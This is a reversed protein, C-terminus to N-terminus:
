RFDITFAEWPGVGQGKCNLKSGGGDEATWYRGGQSRFAVKDGARIVPGSSPDIKVIAFTEFSGVQSGTAVLFKGGGDEATLWRQGSTRLAVADGNQLGFGNADVLTFLEQEGAQNSKCIVKGGGGKDAFVYQGNPGRLTVRYSQPRRMAALIENWKAVVQLTTPEVGLKDAQNIRLVFGTPRGTNDVGALAVLPLDADSIQLRSAFDQVEPLTFTASNLMDAPYGSAQMGSKSAAIVSKLFNEEGRAKRYGTASSPSGARDSVVLLAVNPNKQREQLVVNFIRGSQQEPDSVRPFRSLVEVPAPAGSVMRTRVVGVFVTDEPNIRLAEKCYRREAAVDLHYQLILVNEPKLGHGERREQLARVAQEELSLAPTPHRIGVLVVNSPPAGATAATAQLLVLLGGVLTLCLTRFRM